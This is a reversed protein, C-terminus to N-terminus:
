NEFSLESVIDDCCFNRGVVLERGVISNDCISCYTQDDCCHSTDGGEDCEVGLLKLETKMENIMYSTGSVHQSSSM